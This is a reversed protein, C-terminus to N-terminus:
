LSLVSAKCARAQANGVFSVKPVIDIAAKAKVAQTHLTNFLQTYANRLPKKNKTQQHCM